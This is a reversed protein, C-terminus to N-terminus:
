HKHSRVDHKLADGGSGWKKHPKPIIMIIRVFMNKIAQM